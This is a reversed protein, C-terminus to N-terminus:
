VTVRLVCKWDGDTTTDQTPRLVGDLFAGTFTGHSCVLTGTTGRKAQLATLQATSVAIPLDFTAALLGFTQVVTTNGGPIRLKAADEVKDPGASTFAGDVQEFFSVSSFSGDYYQSLAM